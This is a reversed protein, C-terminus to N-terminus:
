CPSSGSADQVVLPLSGWMLSSKEKMGMMAFGRAKQPYVGVAPANM